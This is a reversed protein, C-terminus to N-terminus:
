HAGVTTVRNTPVTGLGSLVASMSIDCEGDASFGAAKKAIDEHSPLPDHISEFGPCKSATDDSDEVRTKNTSAPKNKKNSFKNDDSLSKTSNKMKQDSHQQKLFINSPTNADLIALLSPENLSSRVSGINKTKIRNRLFYSRNKAAENFNSIVAHEDATGAALSLDRAWHTYNMYVQSLKKSDKSRNMRQRRQEDMVANISMNVNKQRQRGEEATVIHELGRRSHGFKCWWKNEHVGDDSEDELERSGGYRRLAKKYEETDSRLIKKNAQQKKGWADSTQLWIESGGQLMAKAIIRGTKKFEEYDSRQWWILSKGMFSMDARAGITIVRAMAAFTVDKPSSKSDRSNESSQSVVKPEYVPFLLRRQNTNDNQNSNGKKFSSQIPQPVQKKLGTHKLIGKLARTSEPTVAANAIMKLGSVSKPIGDGGMKVTESQKPAPTIASGVNIELKSINGESKLQPTPLNNTNNANTTHSEIIGQSNSNQQLGEMDAAQKELHGSNEEDDDSLCEDDKDEWPTLLCCFINKNKGTKLVSTQPVGYSAAYPDNFWYTMSGENYYDTYADNDYSFGSHESIAAAKPTTTETKNSNEVVTIRETELNQDNEKPTQIEQSYSIGAKFTVNKVDEPPLDNNDEVFLFQNDDEDQPVSEIKEANKALEHLNLISDRAFGLSM